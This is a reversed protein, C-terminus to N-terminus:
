CVLRMKFPVNAGEVMMVLTRSEMVNSCNEQFANSPYHSEFWYLIKRHSTANESFADALKKMHTRRDAHILELGVSHIETFNPIPAKCLFDAL